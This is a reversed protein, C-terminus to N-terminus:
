PKSDPKEIKETKPPAAPHHQQMWEGLGAMDKVMEQFRKGEKTLKQSGPKAVHCQTCKGFTSKLEAYGDLTRLTEYYKGQDTLLKSGPKDHCATCELAEQRGLAETGSALSATLLAALGLTAAAAFAIRQPRM